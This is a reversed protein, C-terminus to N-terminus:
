RAPIPAAANPVNMLVGALILVLQTLDEPVRYIKLDQTIVRGVRDFCGFVWSDGTTVVGYLLPNTRDTWQDLAILEAALQVFGRSLDSKKAEVVLLQDTSELYYDLEGKLYQSVDISYEINVRANISTAVELLIPSILVERRAMESELSVQRRTRDIRDSLEAINSITGIPSIPLNLPAQYYTADLERLIDAISFKLTFYSHFTYSQDPKLIRRHTSM